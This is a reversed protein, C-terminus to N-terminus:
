GTLSPGWSARRLLFHPERLGRGRHVRDLDTFLRPRPPHGVSLIVGMCGMFALILGPASRAAPPRSGPPRVVPPAQLYVLYSVIVVVREHVANASVSAAEKLTFAASISGMGHHRHGVLRAVCSLFLANLPVHHGSARLCGPEGPPWATSCARHPCIGSNAGLLPGGPSVITAAANSDTLSFM